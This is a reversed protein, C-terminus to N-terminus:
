LTIKEHLWISIDEISKESINHGIPYEKYTIKAKTQLLKQYTQRALDVPVVFDNTGHAIFLHLEDLNNWQYHFNNADLFLGSHAIVGSFKSPEMIALNLALMAGMSFGFLFINKSDISYKHHIEELFNFLLNCSKMVQSINIEFSESLEFWTYGGYRYTYPARVSIFQFDNELYDSLDLLDNEDAGRGHLFIVTPRNELDKQSPKTIYTLSVKQM